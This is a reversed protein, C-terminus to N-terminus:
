TKALDDWKVFDGQMSLESLCEPTQPKPNLTKSKPERSSPKAGLTSRVLSVSHELEIKEHAAPM